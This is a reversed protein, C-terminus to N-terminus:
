GRDRIRERKSVSGPHGLAAIAAEYRLHIQLTWASLAASSPTLTALERVKGSIADFGGGLDEFAAMVADTASLQASQRAIAATISDLWRTTM